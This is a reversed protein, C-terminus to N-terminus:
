SPCEYCKEGTGCCAGASSDVAGTPKSNLCASYGSSNCTATCTSACQGNSCTQGSPCTGCNISANCSNTYSGCTAGYKNCDSQTFNPVCCEGTTKTGTATQTTSCNSTQTFSQGSCVTSPDPSWSSVTCDAVCQGNSCTQGSPCTKTGYCTCQLTGNPFADGSGGSYCGYSLGGYGPGYYVTTSEDACYNAPNCFGNSSLNCVGLAVCCQASNFSECPGAQGTPDGAKEGAAVASNSFILIFYFFLSAGFFIIKLKTKKSNM